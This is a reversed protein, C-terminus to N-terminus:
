LSAASVPEPDPAFAALVALCDTSLDHDAPNKDTRIYAREGVQQVLELRMLHELIAQVPGIELQLQEALEMEPRAGVPVVALRAADRIARLTWRQVSMGASRAARRAARYLAPPLTFTRKDTTSVHRVHHVSRASRWRAVSRREGANSPQGGEVSGDHGGPLSM